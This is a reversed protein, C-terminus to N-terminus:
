ILFSFSTSARHFLTIPKAIIVPRRHSFSALSIPYRSLEMVVSLSIRDFFTSCLTSFLLDHPEDQRGDLPRLDLRAEDNLESILKFSKNCVSVCARM